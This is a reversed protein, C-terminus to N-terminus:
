PVPQWSTVLWAQKTWVISYDMAGNVQTVSICPFTQFATQQFATNFLALQNKV